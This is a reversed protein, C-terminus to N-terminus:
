REKRAKKYLYLDLNNQRKKQFYFKIENQTEFSFLKM